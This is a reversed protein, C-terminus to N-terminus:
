HSQVMGSFSIADVKFNDMQTKFAFQAGIEFGMSSLTGLVANQVDSAKDKKKGSGFKFNRANFKGEVTMDNDKSVVNATVATQGNKDAFYFDGRMDRTPWNVWGRGKVESSALAPTDEALIGSFDFSTQVPKLPLVLDKIELRVHKLRFSFKKINNEITETAPNAVPAANEPAANLYDIQGDAILLREFRVEFFNKKDPGPSVRAAPAAAVPADATKQNETKKITIEPKILILESVNLRKRLIDKLNFDVIVEQAKIFDSDKDSLRVNDAQFSLPFKYSIDEIEIQKDISTRLATLFFDKGYRNVYWALSVTLIVTLVLLLLIIRKIVSM